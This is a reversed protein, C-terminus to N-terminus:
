CDSKAARFRGPETSPDMLHPVCGPHSNFAVYVLHANAATFLLIAAPILIWTLRVHVRKM